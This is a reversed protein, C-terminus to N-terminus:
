ADKEKTEVHQNINLVIFNPYFQMGGFYPHNTVIKVIEGLNAATVYAQTGLLTDFTVYAVLKPFRQAVCDKLSDVVKFQGEVVEGVTFDFAPVGAGLIRVIIQMIKFM